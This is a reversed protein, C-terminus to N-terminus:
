WNQDKTRRIFDLEGDKLTCIWYAKLDNGMKSRMFATIEADPIEQEVSRDKNCLLWPRAPDNTALPRQLKCIMEM